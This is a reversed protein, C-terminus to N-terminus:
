ISSKTTIETVHVRNIISIFVFRFHQFNLSLLEFCIKRVNLNIATERKMIDMTAKMLCLIKM